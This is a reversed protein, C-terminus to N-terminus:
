INFIYYIIKYSRNKLYYNFKIKSQILKEQIKYDLGSDENTFIVILENPLKTQNIISNIVNELSSKDKINRFPIILTIPLRM